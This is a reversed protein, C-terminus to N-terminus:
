KGLLTILQAARRSGLLTELSKFLQHQWRRGGMAEVSLEFLKQYEAHLEQLACQRALLFVSRGFEDWYNETIQPEFGAEQYARASLFISQRASARSKLKAPDTAGASSLHNGHFLRVACPTNAFCVQGGKSALRADYEYDEENLLNKWPGISSIASTRYLPTSTGWWRSILLNPFLSEIRRATLRVPSLSAIAQYDQDTLLHGDLNYEFSPGYAAVANVESRLEKVQVEFKEPLLVDDSDLYQIFEGRAHQRGLERAGGPGTNNQRLLILDDFGSELEAYFEQYLEDSGDDVVIIEIPRYTQNVVSEVSQLLLERRNYVPIITSVLNEIYATM